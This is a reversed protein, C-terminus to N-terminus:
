SVGREINKIKTNIGVETLIFEAGRRVEQM